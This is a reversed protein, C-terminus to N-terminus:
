NRELVDAVYDLGRRAAVIDIEVTPPGDAAELVALLRTFRLSRMSHQLAGESSWEEVYHQVCSDGGATISQWSTLCGEELRAQDSLTRLADELGTMRAPRATFTLTLRVLEAGAQNLVAEALANHAGVTAGISANM